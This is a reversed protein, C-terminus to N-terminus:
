DQRTTRRDTRGPVAAAPFDCRPVVAALACERISQELRLARAGPCRRLDVAFAVLLLSTSVGAPGFRVAAWLLLPLPLYVLAPVSGEGGATPWSFVRVSIALLACGMLCAELYRARSINRLDTRAVAIGTLIAPALTLYALSESLFWVRWYFWYNGPAGSFAAVFASLFPALVVAVIIYAILNRLNDFARLGGAFRRVGAAAIYIEVIGAVIFLMASIPFGAHADNIVSTFYAAITYAWWHRAPSVVLVSFLVATTPWLPSIYHPPVKHAFGIETSLHCILGVLLVKLALGIAQPARRAIEGVTSHLRVIAADSM